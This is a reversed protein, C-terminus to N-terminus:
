HTGSVISGNQYITKPLVDPMIEILKHIFTRTSGDEAVLHYTIVYRHRLDDIMDMHLDIAEISSFLSIEMGELYSPFINKLDLYSISEIDYLNSFNVQNTEYLDPDYFIGYPIF